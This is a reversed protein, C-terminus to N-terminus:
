KSDPTINTDLPAIVKQQRAAPAPVHGGVEIYDDNGVIQRLRNQLTHSAGPRALEAEIMIRKLDVLQNHIRALLEFQRDDTREEM